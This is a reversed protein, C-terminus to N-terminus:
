WGLLWTILSTAMSILCWLCMLSTHIRYLSHVVSVSCGNNCESIMRGAMIFSYFGYRCAATTLSSTRMNLRLTFNPWRQAARCSFVMESNGAPHTNVNVNWVQVHLVVSCHLTLWAVLFVLTIPKITHSPVYQDVYLCRGFAYMYIRKCLTQRTYRPWKAVAKRPPM